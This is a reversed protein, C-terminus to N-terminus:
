LHHWSFTANLAIKSNFEALEAASLRIEWM